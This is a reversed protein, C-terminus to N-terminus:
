FFPCNEKNLKMSSIVKELIVNRVFLKFIKWFRREVKQILNLIIWMFFLIIIQLLHDVVIKANSNIQYSQKFVIRSDSTIINNSSTKIRSLTALDNSYQKLIRGSCNITSQYDTIKIGGSCSINEQISKKIRAISILMPEFTTEIRAVSNIHYQNSPSEAPGFISTPEASAYARAM